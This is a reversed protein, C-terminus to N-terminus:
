AAWDWESSHSHHLEPGAPHLGDFGPNGQAFPDADAFGAGSAGHGGGDASSGDAWPLTQSPPLGGGDPMFDDGAIQVQAMGEKAAPLDPASAPGLHLAFNSATLQAISVNDLTLTAGGGTIVVNAGVQTMAQQVAAFDNFQSQSLVITEGSAADFDTIRDDGDGVLHWFQDVGLGGTLVDAGGNGNLTNALDNGVLLNAGSSGLGVRASGVLNLQEVNESMLYADVYSYTTDYGEGAAEYVLDGAETVEYADNGGSGIMIDVGAGGILVNAQGNGVLVNDLGNGTGNVAAGVLRLVEVNDGLAYDLYSFVTDNGQGALEIVVDGRDTVEYTDDGTAGFMVDAGAGGILTNNNANGVLHNDLANGTANIAAGVLRLAEVNDGLAYSVYSFVTDAGQGALEIVQDGAETVEYTDDGVGGSMVDNGAGGILVNNAGNGVLTNALGNGTGVSASGMLYLNEVNATLAYNVYSYVTDTGQNLSEVVQDGAETVEYSDDGAGGTLIDVGSGGVLTDAGAEGYLTDNGSGGYLMDAGDGGSLTDDGGGGDATDNGAGLVVTDNGSGGYITFRDVGLYTIRESGGLNIGGSLGLINLDLLPAGMTFVASGSRYDIILHDDDGPGMSIVDPLTDLLTGQDPVITITDNGAGTTVIDLGPGINTVIDDGSTGIIVDAGATGTYTPM